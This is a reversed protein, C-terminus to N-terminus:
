RTCEIRTMLVSDSSTAVTPLKITFKLQKDNIKRSVKLLNETTYRFILCFPFEKSHM